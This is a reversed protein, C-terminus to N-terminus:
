EHTEDKVTLKPATLGRLTFLLEVTQRILESRSIGADQAISDLGDLQGRDLRLSMQTQM